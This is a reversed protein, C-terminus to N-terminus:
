GSVLLPWAARNRYAFAGLHGIAKAGIDAPLIVKNEIPACPYFSALKEVVPPPIVPDDAVAILRVPSKVSELDPVPLDKGWDVRHGQRSVCWRRWQWYVGTPIDSGLGIAQGPMYGLAATLLPGALFWFALVKPTYALPHRTWHAPGSAIATFRRVRPANKHFAFFMGGLSHGAVEVPLGPFREFVYDVAASQDVAGWQAMTANSRRATVTTSHGFERYDYILVVAERSSCLWQAFRGYYDRPTGAGGHFVVALRPTGEPEFLKGALRAGDSCVIWPYSVGAADGVVRAQATEDNDKM